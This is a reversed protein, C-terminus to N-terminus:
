PLPRDWPSDALVTVDGRAADEQVLSDAVPAAVVLLGAAGALAVLASAAFRKADIM